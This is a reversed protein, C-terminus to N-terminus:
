ASAGLEAPEPATSPSGGQRRRVLFCAAAGVAIVIVPLALTPRMAHVVGQEYTVGEDRLAAALRNQLVAGVAASGIVTGVQRITNLM